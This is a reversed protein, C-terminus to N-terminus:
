KEDQDDIYLPEILEQDLYLAFSDTMKEEIICRKHHDVLLFNPKVAKSLWTEPTDKPKLKVLGVELMAKCFLYNLVSREGTYRSNTKQLLIDLTSSILLDTNCCDRQM